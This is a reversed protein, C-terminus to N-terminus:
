VYIGICIKYLIYTKFNTFIGIYRDNKKLFVLDSRPLFKFHIRKVTKFDLNLILNLKKILEVYM